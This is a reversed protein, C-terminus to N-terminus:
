EETPINVGARHVYFPGIHYSNAKGLFYNIGCMEPTTDFLSSTTMRIQSAGPNLYRM